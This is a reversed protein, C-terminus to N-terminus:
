VASAQSVGECCSSVKTCCGEKGLLAVLTSGQEAGVVTHASKDLSHNNTTADRCDTVVRSIEVLEPHRTMWYNYWNIQMKMTGDTVHEILYRKLSAGFKKPPPGGDSGMSMHRQLVHPAASAASVVSHLGVPSRAETRLTVCPVTGYDQRWRRLEYEGAASM